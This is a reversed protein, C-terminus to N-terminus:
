DTLGLGAFLFVAIAITWFGRSSYFAAGLATLVVVFAIGGMAPTGIKKKHLEFFTRNDIDSRLEHHVAAGARKLLWIITPCIAVTVTVAVLMAIAPGHPLSSM